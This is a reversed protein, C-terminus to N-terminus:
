VYNELISFRIPLVAVPESSEPKDIYVSWTRKDLDFIGAAITKIIAEDKQSFVQYKEGTTDSIIAAIDRRNKPTQHAHITKLRAVSSDIILGTVETVNTHMYMNCHILPDKDYKQITVMSKDAKLDPAVELNLLQRRGGNDSWIMNVSFGNGIGLGEDRLINEAENYSQAALLKRTIFTRPTNGPKLVLASLTNISFVLGNENFGMTYGPMHGAYCISSFREEVAGNKRDEPTPIIHASMIYFHNLTDNHADETHGLITHIQNNIGISSCGGTDNRPVRNDNVTLMIDDMQLLLLQYFPVGAGDAVGQMEKVYYPFRKKMNALTKDYARQGADTKFEKELEKLVEFKSLLNKILHGMTRGVDYGVEYHSGRVYIVPVCKRRGNQKEGFVGGIIILFTYCYVSYM